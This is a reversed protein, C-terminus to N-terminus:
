ARLLKTITRDADRFCKDLDALSPIAGSQIGLLINRASQVLLLCDQLREREVSKLM